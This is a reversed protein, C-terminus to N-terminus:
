SPPAPELAKGNPRTPEAPQESAVIDDLVALAGAVAALQEKTQTRLRNVRSLQATLQDHQKRLADIREAISPM